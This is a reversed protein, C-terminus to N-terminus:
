QSPEMKFMSNASGPSRRLEVAIGRAPAAALFDDICERIDHDIFQARTGDIVVEVDDPIAAFAEILAPKNLFSVDKAFRVLVMDGDRTIVLASQFNSRVVFFVGVLVGICIGVLLDTLLIALITVTFPVFQTSGHRVQQLLVSPRALRWGMVILVAALAALPVHNIVPALLLASILLLVGHVITSLKTRAGATVNASSRVIVATVPLAGILAAVMNGVGQAKLERNMPTTRKLPDLKDAAEVSLLSEVSAVLGVTLALRLVGPDLVRTFDPFSLSGVFQAASSVLPIAVRHSAQLQWAPLWWGLALNVLTGVLVAMLPPPLWVGGPMRPALRGWLLLAGLAAAFVLVAGPEASVVAAYLDWFTNGGSPEIFSEDGEFDVDYGLAHPIQKLILILGIAALMGHVVSTPVFHALAGARLFGLLLQLAGALLVATLFAPYGLETVGALVIVTLGAAPGSVSVQSGSLGGVVLGGVVGALVGALLPAGSALAIGLCLPLAVLFVVLAAPLDNRPSM